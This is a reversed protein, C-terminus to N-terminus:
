AHAAPGRAVGLLTRLTRIIVPADAPKLFVGALGLEHLGVSGALADAATSLIFCPAAMGRSRLREPLTQGDAHPDALLDVLIADPGVRVATREGEAGSCAEGVMFDAAELARRLTARAHADADVLLVTRRRDRAGITM